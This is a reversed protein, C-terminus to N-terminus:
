AARSIFREDRCADRLRGMTHTTPLSQISPPANKDKVHSAEPTREEDASEVNKDESEDLAGGAICYPGYNIKKSTREDSEDNNENVDSREKRKIAGQPSEKFGSKTFLIINPKPKQIDLASQIIKLIRPIDPVDPLPGPSPVSTTSTM